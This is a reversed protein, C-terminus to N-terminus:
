WISSWISLHPTPHWALIPRQQLRPSPRTCVNAEVCSVILSCNLESELVQHKSFTQFPLRLAPFRTVVNLWDSKWYVKRPSLGPKVKQKRPSFSILWTSIEGLGRPSSSLHLTYKLGLVMGCPGQINESHINPILLIRRLHPSQLIPNEQCATRQRRCNSYIHVKGRRDTNATLTWELTIAGDLKQEPNENKHHWSGQFGQASPPHWM